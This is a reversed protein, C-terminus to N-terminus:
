ELLEGYYSRAMERCRAYIEKHHHLSRLRKV